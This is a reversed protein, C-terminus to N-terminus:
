FENDENTLTRQWEAIQDRNCWIRDGEYCKCGVVHFVEQGGVQLEPQRCLGHAGRGIAPLNYKGWYRQCCQSGM